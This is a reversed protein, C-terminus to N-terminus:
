QYALSERVSIRTAGRAPLWSALISLITIIVLWLVAGVPTYNYILEIDFAEGLAMVMLRGAPISLPLAILWSLWGLILGEGIFLRAIVWSSAGIARMVGIERIRELVSLSIAGSLAISGVTGIVVAMIGLLVVLFNFQNIMTVATEATSDGGIGFVGHQPSLNVHNQEYYARLDRAVAIEYELGQRVTQIWVTGARGVRGLDHLLIDRSVNASNTLIPDFVLGVVLWDREKYEEYQLTVWDGVGVGVEEALDQNLVVAFDDNPDLWRGARMQYGYLQTPLPVGFLTANEDDDSEAQDAPRITVGTLGWLEAAQVEPHSLTLKELHDIRQPGEFVMTINANLISFLVDRVTYVVSDRVSVVMMFMLGSLVLAIQLLVVRQKHRFTNSITILFLRSIYKARALLREILGTNTSLGYTSIAERVTIRAGSFIPILSALLPAVLAIMAQVTIAVPSVEFPGLDAGFNSALWSSIAWAGLIGIPLSLLLSLFGYVLVNVLYLRLIQWTRAGIAKMIGIQDVQQSIIANITNYVLLLGLILSLMGLVGLLFFLGDMSEQFFHENPDYIMRGSDKGQKELKSQLRDALDTVAEEDYVAASVLVQNFNRNGALREYYDQSTYFQATGGFYAPQVLQDYVKGDLQVQVERDNIRLYVQGRTSIGHFTDSDQGGTMVEDEPWNGDLLELKNLKQNEYDTRATLGGQKWEDEQGFRWEITTSSLGEIVEVGDLNKLVFLEDENVPPFIFLNIMAPDMSQWIDQMGPILLNRVGMIMGIAGAGIGIILIVQLTRGKNKWLDRLIKYRLVGM